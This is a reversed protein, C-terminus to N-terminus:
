KSKKSSRRPKAKSKASDTDQNDNFKLGPQVSLEGSKDSSAGRASLLKQSQNALAVFQELLSRMEESNSPVATNSQQKSQSENSPVTEDSTVRFQCAAGPIVEITLTRAVLRAVDNFANAASINKITWSYEEWSIDGSVPQGWSFGGRVQREFGKVTRAWQGHWGRPGMLAAMLGFWIFSSPALVAMKRLLFFHSTGRGVLFAGAALVASMSQSVRSSRNAVDLAYAALRNFAIVRSEFSDDYLDPHDAL